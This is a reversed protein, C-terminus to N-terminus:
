MSAIAAGCLAAMWRCAWIACAWAFWAAASACCSDCRLCASYARCVDITWACYLASTSLACASAEWAPGSASAWACIFTM